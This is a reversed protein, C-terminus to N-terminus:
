IIEYLKLLAVREKGIALAEQASSDKRKGTERAYKWVRQTWAAPM